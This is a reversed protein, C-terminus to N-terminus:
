RVSERASAFDAFSLDAVPPELGSFAAAFLSDDADPLPVLELPPEPLLLGLLPEVPLLLEPLLEDLLPDDLLL